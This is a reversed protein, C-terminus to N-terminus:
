GYQIISRDKKTAAALFSSDFVNRLQRRYMPVDEDQTDARASCTHIDEEQETQCGQNIPIPQFTVSDQSPIVQHSTDSFNLDKHLQKYTDFSTKRTSFITTQAGKHGKRLIRKFPPLSMGSASISLQRNMNTNQPIKTKSIKPELNHSKLQMRSRSFTSKHSNLTFAKATEFSDSHSDNKNRDLKQTNFMGYPNSNLALNLSASDQFELCAIFDDILALVFQEDWYAPPQTKGEPHRSIYDILGMKSGALHKIDFDFPLLRDIWRTLRSQYIKNNEQM